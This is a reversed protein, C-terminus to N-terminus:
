DFNNLTGNKNLIYYLYIFGFHFHLVYTEIGLTQGSNNLIIIFIYDVDVQFWVSILTCLM